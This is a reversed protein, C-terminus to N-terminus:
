DEGDAERLAALADEGVHLGRRGTARETILVGTSFDLEGEDDYIGDPNEGIRVTERVTFMAERVAAERDGAAVDNYEIPEEREALRDLTREVHTPAAGSDYIYERV